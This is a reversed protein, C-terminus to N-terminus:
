FIGSNTNLLLGEKERSDQFGFFGESAPFTEITDIKQGISEFLKAKYPEFNVGGHALVSFNPFLEKIKKGSRETLRDFYMQVWPPIGSIMTMNENVTEAVIADIKEEFDEICNTDWSPLQNRRLYQPVHHNVIGSLRGVKLGNKNELAPSGSIFILKGNLFDSKGTEAIYALMANRTSNIHNSISDKTIPIYKIGSTTGSTKSVYLPEGPWLINMEGNLMRDIYAKMSEYDRVPVRSIFDDYTKIERFWHDKGFATYKAKRILKRFINEQLEVANM